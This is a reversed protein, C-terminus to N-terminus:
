KLDIGTGSQTVKLPSFRSFQNRQPSKRPPSENPAFKEISKSTGHLAREFQHNSISIEADEHSDVSLSVNQPDFDQKVPSNIGYNRARIKNGRSFGEKKNKGLLTKSTLKLTSDEQSSLSPKSNTGELCNNSLVAPSPMPKAVLQQRNTGYSKSSKKSLCSALNKSDSNVGYNKSNRSMSKLSDTPQFTKTSRNKGVKNLTENSHTKGTSFRDTKKLLQTLTSPTIMLSSRVETSPSPEFGTNNYPKSLRSLDHTAYKWEGQQNTPEESLEFLNKHKKFPSQRSIALANDRSLYNPKKQKKALVKLYISSSEVLAQPKKQKSTEQSTRNSVDKTGKSNLPTAIRSNSGKLKEPQPADRFPSKNAKKRSSRLTEPSSKKKASNKLSQLMANQVSFVNPAPIVELPKLAEVDINKDSGSGSNLKPEKVEPTTSEAMEKKKDSEIHFSYIKPKSGTALQKLENSFLNSPSAPALVGISSQKPLYVPSPDPLMQASIQFSSPQSTPLNFSQGGSPSDQLSNRSIWPSEAEVTEREEKIKSLKDGFDASESEEFWEDNRPKKYQDQNQNPNDKKDSDSHDEIQETIIKTKHVTKNITKLPQDQTKIEYSTKIIDEEKSVRLSGM